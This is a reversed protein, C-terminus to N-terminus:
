EGMLEFVARSRFEVDEGLIRGGVAITGVTEILRVHGFGLESPIVVEIASRPEFRVGLHDPGDDADLELTEPIGSSAGQALLGMVGPVRRVPEGTFTGRARATLSVRTFIRVLEPGRWVTLTHEKAVQGARDTTRDYVLTLAPGDGGAGPDRAVGWQWGFDEGWWWRGWNHDHYGRWGSLSGKWGPARARGTAVLDPVILWNVYGSGVPTDSWIMTSASVPTLEAAMAVSSDELSATVRYRGDRFTIRNRGVRLAPSGASLRARDGGFLDVGGSWGEPGHALLVAKAEGAGRTRVDGNVSLNAILTREVGDFLVFHHWEKYMGADAAGRAPPHLRDAVALAEGTAPRM